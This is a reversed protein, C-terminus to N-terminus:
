SSADTTHEHFFQALRRHLRVARNEIGRQDGARLFNLAVLARRVSRQCVERFEEALHFGFFEEVRIVVFLQRGVV